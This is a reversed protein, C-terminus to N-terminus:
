LATPGSATNGDGFNWQYSAITGDPDTSGSGNFSVAQGVVQPQPSSTFSATPPIKGMESVCRFNDFEVAFTGLPTDPGVLSAFEVNFGSLILETKSYIEVNDVYAKGTMTHANYALKLNHWVSNENGSGWGGFDGDQGDKDTWWIWYYGPWGWRTYFSMGWQGSQNTVFPNSYIDMYM